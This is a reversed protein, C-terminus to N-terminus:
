IVRSVNIISQFAYRHHNTFAVAQARKGKAQCFSCLKAHDPQQLATYGTNADIVAKDSHQITKDGPYKFRLRTLENLVYINCGKSYFWFHSKAIEVVLDMMGRSEMVMQRPIACIMKFMTHQVSLGPPPHENHKVQKIDSAQILACLDNRYNEDTQARPGIVLDHPVKKGVM